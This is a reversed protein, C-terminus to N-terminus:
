SSKRKSNLNLMIKINKDVCLHLLNLHHNTLKKKCDINLMIIINKDIFKLFNPRM